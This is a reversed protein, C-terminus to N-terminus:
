SEHISERIVLISAQVVRYRIRFTRYSPDFSQAQHYGRFFLGYVMLLFKPRQSILIVFSGSKGTKSLPGLLLALAIYAEYYGGAGAGKLANESAPTLASILDTNSAKEPEDWITRGSDDLVDEQHRAQRKRDGQGTAGGPRKSTPHRFAVHIDLTTPDSSWPHRSRARTNRQTYSPRNHIRHAPFIHSYARRLPPNHFAHTL